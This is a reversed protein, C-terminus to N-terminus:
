PVSIAVWYCFPDKVQLSTRLGGDERLLPKQHAHVLDYLGLGLRRGPVSLTIPSKLELVLPLAQLAGMSSPLSRSAWFGSNHCLFM